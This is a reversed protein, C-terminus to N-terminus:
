TTDGWAAACLQELGVLSAGLAGALTLEYIQEDHYGGARLADIDEDVIQHAYLSLKELYPLLADPPPDLAPRAGGRQRAAFAEVASRLGPELQGEASLLRERGRDVGRPRLQGDACRVIEGVAESGRLLKSWLDLMVALRDLLRGEPLSFDFADAVRNILNYHFGVSAFGQIAADSLGDSRLGAVFTPDIEAPSLTMAELGRLAASTAAPIQATHWDELM